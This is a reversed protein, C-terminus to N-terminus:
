GICRRPTDEGHSVDGQDRLYIRRRDAAGDLAAAEGRKSDRGAAPQEPEARVVDRRPEHDRRRPSL